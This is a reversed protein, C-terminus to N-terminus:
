HPYRLISDVSVLGVAYWGAPALRRPYRPGVEPAIQNGGPRGALIGPDIGAIALERNVLQNARWPMFAPQSCHWPRGMSSM